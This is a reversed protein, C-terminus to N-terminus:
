APVEDHGVVAVDDYGEYRWKAALENAEDFSLLYDHVEIGGVYVSWVRM